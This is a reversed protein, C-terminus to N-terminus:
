GNCPQWRQRATTLGGDKNQQAAKGLKRIDPRWRQRALGGQRVEGMTLTYYIYKHLLGNM